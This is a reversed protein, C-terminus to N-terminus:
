GAKADADGSAPSASLLPLVNSKKPLALPDFDFAFRLWGQYHKRWWSKLPVPAASELLPQYLEDKIQAKTRWDWCTFNAGDWLVYTTLGRIWTGTNVYTKDGLKVVGPQHTHGCVLTRYALDPLRERVERFLAQSDGQENRNWWDVWKEWRAASERAGLKGLLGAYIEAGRLVHYAGWHAVRNVKNDFSVLPVRIFNGVAKELRAHLTALVRGRANAEESEFYPDYEHGHVVLIDPPLVLREVVSFDLLDEFLVIDEDHNGYVYIVEKEDALQKLRRLVRKHARLIRDFSGVYFDFADGLIVLKDGNAQVHDLFAILEDDKNGFLDASSGDGIHLDSVFFIREGRSLRRTLNVKIEAAWRGWRSNM